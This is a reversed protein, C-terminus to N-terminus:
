GNEDAKLTQALINAIKDYSQRASLEIKPLIVTRDSDSPTKGSNYEGNDKISYVRKIGYKFGSCNVTDTFEALLDIKDGTAKESQVTWEIKTLYFGDNTLRQFEGSTHVSDGDLAIKKIYGVVEEDAEQQTASKNIFASTVDKLNYGDINNILEIFFRTRDAPETLTSLNIEFEEYSDTNKEKLKEKIAETIKNAKEDANTRVLIKGEATKEIKIEATKQTNQSLVNKTFDAKTYTETISFSGDKAQNIAFGMEKKMDKLISQIDQTNYDLMIETSNHKKQSNGGGLEGVIFKQDFYSTFWPSIMEALEEKEEEHSILLGRQKLHELISAKSPTRQHLQDFIDKDTKYFSLGKIKSM